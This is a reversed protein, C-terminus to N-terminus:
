FNLMLVFGVPKEFSDNVVAVLAFEEFPAYKVGYAVGVFNSREPMPPPLDDNNFPPESTMLLFPYAEEVDSM